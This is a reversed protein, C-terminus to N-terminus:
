KYEKLLMDAIILKQVDNVGAYIETIRADRYHREAPLDSVYGMGGLIQIAGHSVFTAAESAALKAMSSYKSSRKAEDCIVAARWVLLRASELRTAMEALRLKVAQLKNIPQGFAKREKSYEVALDLAAQAIGLAQSAIGIRAKELQKMAIAFGQGPLGIVNDKPVCVNDLFYDCTSSARIGMKDEPKGKCLGATPVPVLFATIGKHKLKKDVTAFIVAAEGEIGTTVWSKHGNLIYKDGDLQATTAISSVDSGADPESLAFCGLRGCVFPSLFAQKQEESGFNNLLNVYLANHISVIAGTGGCGKSIEEVAVSMGLTSEGCGGYKEDATIGLLGLEGLKKIQESPFKGTKDLQSAVPRLEKKAFDRCTKKLQQHQESLKHLSFLRKQTNGTSCSYFIPRLAM